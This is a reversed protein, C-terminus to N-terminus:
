RAQPDFVIHNLGFKQKYSSKGNVMVDRKEYVGYLEWSRVDRNIHGRYGVKVYKCCDSPIQSVTNSFLFTIHVRYHTICKPIYCNHTSKLMFYYTRGVPEDDLEILLYKASASTLLHAMSMFVVLTLIIPKM